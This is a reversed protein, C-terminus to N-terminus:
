RVSEAMGPPAFSCAAALFDAFYEDSVGECENWSKAKSVSPGIFEVPIEKKV